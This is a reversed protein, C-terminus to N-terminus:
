SKTGLERVIVIIGVSTKRLSEIKRLYIIKSKRIKIRKITLYTIIIWYNWKVYILYRLDNNWFRLM